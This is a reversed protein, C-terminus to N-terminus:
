GTPPSFRVSPRRPHRRGTAALGPTLVYDRGASNETIDVIAYEIGTKDLAKKTATCQVRAPKTNVTTDPM